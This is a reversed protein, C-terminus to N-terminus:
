QIKFQERHQNAMGDGRSLCWPKGTRAVEDGMQTLKDVYSDLSTGALDSVKQFETLADNMEFVQDVMSSIIDISTSMIANAEQFTLGMHEVNVTAEKLGNANVNLGITNQKGLDQLQKTIQSINQIEADVLITFNTAM